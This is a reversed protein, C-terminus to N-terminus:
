CTAEFRRMNVLSTAIGHKPNGIKCEYELSIYGDYNIDKLVRFCSRFDIEGEGVPCPVVTNNVFLFDKVHVMAIYDAINSVGDLPLEGGHSWYNGIDANARLYPSNVKEIYFIQESSNKCLASHDELAMVVNYKEATEVCAAFADAIKSSYTAWDLNYGGAFVRLVPCGFQAAEELAVKVKEIEAPLRDEAIANGFNNGVIYNAIAIGEGDAVKEAEAFEAAKDEGWYYGLDIGDFGLDAAAKIIKAVSRGEEPVLLHAGYVATSMKM